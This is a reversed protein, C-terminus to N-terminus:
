ILDAVEVLNSFIPVSKVEDRGNFANRPIETSGDAITVHGNAADFTFDFTM